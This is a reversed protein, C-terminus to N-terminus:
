RLTEGTDAKRATGVLTVVPFSQLLREGMVAKPYGTVSHGRTCQVVEDRPVM